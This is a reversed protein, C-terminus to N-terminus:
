SRGVRSNIMICWLWKSIDRKCSVVPQWVLRVVPQITYVFMWGTTFGNDFRNSLRNFTWICSVAPQWIPKVVRKIVPNFSCGSNTWGTTLSRQVVPKVFVTTLGHQVFMQENLRNDFLTTCGTQCGATYVICGNTLGTILRTQCGTSHKCLTLDSETCSLKPVFPHATETCSSKPVFSILKPVHTKQLVVETCTFYRKPVDNLRYRYM